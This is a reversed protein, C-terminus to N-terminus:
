VGVRSKLRSGLSQPQKATAGQPPVAAKKAKRPNFGKYQSLQRQIANVKLTSGASLGAKSIEGHEVGFASTAM